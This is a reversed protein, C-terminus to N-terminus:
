LTPLDDETLEVTAIFETTRKAEAVKQSMEAEAEMQEIRKLIEQCEKHSHQKYENTNGSDQVNSVSYFDYYNVPFGLAETSNFHSIKFDWKETESDRKAQELLAYSVFVPTADALLWHEQTELADPVYHREKLYTPGNIDEASVEFHYVRMLLGSKGHVLLYHLSSMHQYPCMGEWQPYDHFEYLISPQGIICGEISTSTCIRPITKDEGDARNLPIRPEFQHVEADMFPSIHFLTLKEDTKMKEPILSM